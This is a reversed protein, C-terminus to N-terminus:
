AIRNVYKNIYLTYLLFLIDEFYWVKLNQKFFCFKFKRLAKNHIDFSTIRELMYDREAKLNRIACEMRAVKKRMLCKTSVRKTMLSRTSISFRMWWVMTNRWLIICYKKELNEVKEQYYLLKHTRHQEEQMLSSIDSVIDKTIKYYAWKGDSIWNRIWNFVLM